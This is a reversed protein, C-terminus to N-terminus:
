VTNGVQTNYDKLHARLGDNQIAGLGGGGVGSSAVKLHCRHGGDQRFRGLPNMCRNLM